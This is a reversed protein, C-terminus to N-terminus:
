LQSWLATGYNKLFEYMRRVGEVDEKECYNGLQTHVYKLVIFNIDVMRGSVEYYEGLKEVALAAYRLDVLENFLASELYDVCQKYAKWADTATKREKEQDECKSHEKSKDYIADRLKMIECEGKVYERIVDDYEGDFITEFGWVIKERLKETTNKVAFKPNDLKKLNYEVLQEKLWRWIFIRRAPNVSESESLLLIISSLNNHENGEYWDDSEGIEEFFYNMDVDLAKSIVYLEQASPMIDNNEWKGILEPEVKCKKALKEVDMNRYLRMEQINRGINTDM